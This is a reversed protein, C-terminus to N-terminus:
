ACLSWANIGTLGTTSSFTNDTIENRVRCCSAVSDSSDSLYIFFSSGKSLEDACLEKYEKDVVDNGDHLLCMTTVPFTLPKVLRLERHLELFMRQLIDIAKWEPKTGDPYYFDKFMSEFYYSDFFNLNSFPSNYSRNGAPQSVGYIFQKMGKRITDKVTRTNKCISTSTVTDLHNYWDSGFEAIVYYNLAVFYDGLAVAGRVQSSLLFVLNTVQGSFSQIDNPACPTVGDINGTGELMMPYLTAAMCYNKVAPSSAEDHAYIIHNNLDVEYQDAVEPFLEKLRKKMRTRQVLRNQVKYVEGEMNAVNKMAVNANSDTESATAANTNASSYKDMYDLRSQIFRSENHKERYLIYARATSYHGCCMLSDEVINQIDEVTSADKVKITDKIVNLCIQITEEDVIKSKASDFAARVAKEIKSFNFEEIEGNRKVITKM